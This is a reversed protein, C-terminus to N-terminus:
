FFGSGSDSKKFVWGTGSGLGLNLIKSFNLKLKKYFIEIKLIIEWTFKSVLGSDDL